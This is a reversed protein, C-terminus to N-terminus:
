KQCRELEDYNPQVTIYKTESGVMYESLEQINLTELLIEGTKRDCIRFMLCFGGANNNQKRCM